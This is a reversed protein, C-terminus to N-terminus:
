SPANTQFPVNRLSRWYEIDNWTKGFGNCFICRFIISAGSSKKNFRKYKCTSSVTHRLSRAGTFGPFPSHKVQGEGWLAVELETIDLNACVLWVSAQHAM